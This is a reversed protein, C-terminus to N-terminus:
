KRGNLIDKLNINYYTGDKRQFTITINILTYGLIGCVTEIFKKFTIRGTKIAKLLNGKKNAIASPHIGDSRKSYEIFKDDYIKKTIQEDVLFKRLITDLHNKGKLVEEESVLTESVNIKGVQNEIIDRFRHKTAM